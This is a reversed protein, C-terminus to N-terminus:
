YIIPWVHYLNMQRQTAISLFFLKIPYGEIMCNNLSGPQHFHAMKLNHSQWCSRPTTGMTVVRVLVPYLFMSSLIPSIKISHRSISWLM